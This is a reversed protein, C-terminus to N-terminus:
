YNVFRKGPKKERNNFFQYVAEKGRKILFKKKSTALDRIMPGVEGIDIAISRSWDKPHMYTRNLNKYLISYFSKTFTTVDKIHYPALGKQQRDYKHQRHREVRLGLTYPNHNGESAWQDDPSYQTSDFLHIPYNAVIGGDVMVNLDETTSPNEVVELSDNMFVPKFYFPITLSIRIATKVPVHPTTEASFIIAKQQTLNTGTVYLDPLHTSDSRHDLEELTITADGTKQAICQGIWRELRDAKFLGYYNSFRFPIGVIWPAQQVKTLSTHLVLDRIEKPTFGVAYLGAALAGISTGGVRQVHRLKNEKELAILAGSYALGRIGGGEFVLNRPQAEIRLPLFLLLIVIIGLGGRGLIKRKNSAQM